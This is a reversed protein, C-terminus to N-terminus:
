NRVSDTNQRMRGATYSDACSSANVKEKTAPAVIFLSLLRMAALPTDPTKETVFLRLIRPFLHFPRSTRRLEPVTHSLANSNRASERGPTKANRLEAKLRFACATLRAIHTTALEM